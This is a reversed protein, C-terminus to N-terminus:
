LIFSFSMLFKLYFHSKFKRLDKKLPIRIIKQLSMMFAIELLELDNAKKPGPVKKNLRILGLGGWLLWFLSTRNCLSYFVFLPAQLGGSLGRALM